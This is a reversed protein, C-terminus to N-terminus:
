FIYGVGIHLFKRTVRYDRDGSQNVLGFDYGVAFKFGNSLLAGAEIGIPVDFDGGKENESYSAGGYRVKTQGGLTCVLSPGASVFVDVLNSVPQTYKLHLPASLFYEISNIGDGLNYNALNFNLAPAFSIQPYNTSKIDYGVGAYFGNGNLDYSFGRESSRYLTNLYGANVSVQAFAQVCLFVGLIISLIKKM